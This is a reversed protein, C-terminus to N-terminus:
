SSFSYGMRELTEKFITMTHRAKKQVLPLKREIEASLKKRQKMREMILEEASSDLSDAGVSCTTDCLMSAAEEVKHEWGLGFFPTASLSALVIPHLRSSIVFDAESMMEAAADPAHIKDVFTVGEPMHQRLSSHFELDEPDTPLFVIEIGYDSMLRKTVVQLFNIYRKSSNRSRQVWERPCLIAKGTKPKKKFGSFDFAIDATIHYDKIGLNELNRASPGDRLIILDTSKLVFKSLLKGISSNFPGLSHGYLVTPKGLLKALILDHYPRLFSYDSSIFGGGVSVVVDADFFDNLIEKKGSNFLFVRKGLLRWCLASLFNGSLVLSGKLLDRLNYKPYSEFVPLPYERYVADDNMQLEPKACSVSIRADPCLQRMHKIMTLVIARDGTNENHSNVLLIRRLRM